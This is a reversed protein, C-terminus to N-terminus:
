PLTLSCLAVLVAVVTLAVNRGNSRPRSRSRSSRRKSCRASPKVSSRLDVVSRTRARMLTAGDDLHCIVLNPNMVEIDGTPIEPNANGEPRIEVVLDGLTLRAPAFPTRRGEPAEPCPGSEQVIAARARDQGGLPDGQVEELPHATDRGRRPARLDGAEEYWFLPYQRLMKAYAIATELDFRGNADVALQAEGDIETLVAKLKQDRDQLILLNEIDPRM